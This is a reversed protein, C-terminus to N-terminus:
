LYDLLHDYHFFNFWRYTYGAFIEWQGTLLLLGVVILLAGGIRSLLPTFRSVLRVRHALSGMGAALILFPIALGLSFIFLLGMGELVTEGTSALFLISGVIPGVCPTWGLGFAAGLVFANRKRGREALAKLPIKREKLFLPTRVWGLMLLGFLIVFLGGLRALWIKYPGVAVGVLGALTGLLVFVLTFGAAFAMGNWLIARHTQARKEVNDLDKLSVGAIFALYGPLLPLTCPAFFTLLGAIFAPIVLSSEM